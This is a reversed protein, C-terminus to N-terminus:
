RRQIESNWNRQTHSGSEGISTAYLKNIFSKSKPAINGSSDFALPIICNNHDWLSYKKINDKYPDKSIANNVWTYSWEKTVKDCIWKLFKDKNSKVHISGSTIDLCYFITPFTRTADNFNCKLAIDARCNPDDQPSQLGNKRLFYRDM